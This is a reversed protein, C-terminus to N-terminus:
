PACAGAGMLWAGASRCFMSVFPLGCYGCPVIEPKDVNIFVRPHGHPGGGVVDARSRLPPLSSPLFVGVGMM